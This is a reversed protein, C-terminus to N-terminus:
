WFICNFNSTSMKAGFPAIERVIEINGFREAAGNIVGFVREGATVKRRWKFRRQLTRLQKPGISNPHDRMLVKQFRTGAAAPHDQLYNIVEPWVHM